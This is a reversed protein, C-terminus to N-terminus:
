PPSVSVLAEQTGQTRYDKTVKSWSQVGRSGRLRTSQFGPSLVDGQSRLVEKWRRVDGSLLSHTTKKLYTQIRKCTCLGHTHQHECLDSPPM